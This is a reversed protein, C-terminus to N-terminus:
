RAVEAMRERHLDLVAAAIDALAIDYARRGAHGPTIRFVVHPMTRDHMVEIRVGTEPCRYDTGSNRWRGVERAPDFDLPTVPLVIGPRDTTDPM